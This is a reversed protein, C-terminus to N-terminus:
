AEEVNEIYHQAIEACVMAVEKPVEMGFYLFQQRNASDNCIATFLDRETDFSLTNALVSADRHFEIEQALECYSCDELSIIEENTDNIGKLLIPSHGNERYAQLIKDYGFVSTTDVISLTSNITYVAINNSFVPEGKYPVGDEFFVGDLRKYIVIAVYKGKDVEEIILLAECKKTEDLDFLKERTM